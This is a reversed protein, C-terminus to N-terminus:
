FIHSSNQWGCLLLFLRFGPLEEDPLKWLPIWLQATIATFFQSIEQFISIDLVRYVERVTIHSGTYYSTNSDSMFINRVHDALEGLDETCFPSFIASIVLLLLPFICVCQDVQAAPMPHVSTMSPTELTRTILYNIISYCFMFYCFM